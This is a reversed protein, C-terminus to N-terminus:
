RRRGLFALAGRVIRVLGFLFSFVGFLVWVLPVHLEALHQRVRPMEGPLESDPLFQAVFLVVGIFVNLVGFALWPWAPRWFVLLPLFGALLLTDPVWIFPSAAPVVFALLFGAIWLVASLYGAAKGHSPRKTGADAM